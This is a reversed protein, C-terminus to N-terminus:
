DARALHQSILESEPGACLELLETALARAIECPHVLGVFLIDEHSARVSTHQMEPVRFVLNM